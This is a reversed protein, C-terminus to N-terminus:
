SRNFTFAFLTDGAAILVYQKHDIMYTIPGASANGTMGAHWLIRGDAADLAIINKQNSTFLLKGATTLMSALGSGSPWDHRWDINGTRYDIAVLAGGEGGAVRDIGAWGEPRDQTDTLYFM